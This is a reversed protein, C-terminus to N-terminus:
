HLFPAFSLPSRVTTLKVILWANTPDYSEVFRQIEVIIMAHFNRFYMEECQQESSCPKNKYKYWYKTKYKTNTDINQKTNQKQKLIKNPFRVTTRELSNPVLQRDLVLGLQSLVGWLFLVSGGVLCRRERSLGARRLITGRQWILYLFVILPVGGWLAGGKKLEKFIGLPSPSIFPSFHISPYCTNLFRTEKQLNTEFFIQQQFCEKSRVM